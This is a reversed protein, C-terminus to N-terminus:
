ETKRPVRCRPHTFITRIAAAVKEFNGMPVVALLARILDMRDCQWPSNIRVETRARRFSSHAEPIVLYVGSVGRDEPIHGLAIWDGKAAASTWTRCRVGAM